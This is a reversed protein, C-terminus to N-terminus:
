PIAEIARILISRVKPANKEQSKRIADFSLPRDVIGHCYNDVSCISGYPLGLESALTAESALTMGLIDGVTRFHAIEARTELRPGTTQVYVGNPRVIVQTRKAARVLAARLDKDLTPTVHEVIDDHFTPINWFALFDHPVVFSGPRISRKLSGTSSTAVVRTVGVEKLAWLNARHNIRHPPIRHDPGHRGLIAVPADGVHGLRPPESPPGYPTDVPKPTEGEVPSLDRLGSGTILGIMAGTM